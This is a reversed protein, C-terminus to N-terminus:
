LLSLIEDFVAPGDGLDPPSVPAGPIQRQLLARAEDPMYAVKMLLAQLYSPNIQHLARGTHRGAGLRLTHGDVRDRYIWYLWQDWEDAIRAAYEAQRSLAEDVDDPIAGARIMALLLRGAAAADAAASHANRLPLGYFRCIAELSRRRHHRHHWRVFIAPDLLRDAPLRAPHGVRALEHDIIQADFDLASYGVVLAPPDRQLGDLHAMLRDAAERFTPATRVHEDYIHHIRSAEQPIPREPNILMRRTDTIEGGRLWAAGLEIVRDTQPDVGTTETDIVFISAESIRM